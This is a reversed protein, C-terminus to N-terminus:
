NFLSKYPTQLTWLGIKKDTGKTISQLTPLKLGELKPPKDSMKDSTTEIHQHHYRQRHRKRKERARTSSCPLSFAVFNSVVIIPWESTHSIARNTQETFKIASKSSLITVWISLAVLSILQTPWISIQHVETRGSIYHLLDTEIMEITSHMDCQLPWKIVHVPGTRTIKLIDGLVMYQM